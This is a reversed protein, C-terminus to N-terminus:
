YHPARNPNSYYECGAAAHLPTRGTDDIASPNAGHILLNQIIELCGQVCAVHLPTASSTGCKTNPEAGHLLLLRVRNPRNSLTALFLPTIGKGGNRRRNSLSPQAILHQEFEEDTKDENFLCGEIGGLNIEIRWVNPQISSIQSETHNRPLHSSSNGM